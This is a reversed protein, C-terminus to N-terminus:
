LFVTLFAITKKRDYKETSTNLLVKILVLWYHVKFGKQLTEPIWM